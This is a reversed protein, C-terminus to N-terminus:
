EKSDGEFAGVFQEFFAHPRASYKAVVEPPVYTKVLSAFDSYAFDYSAFRPGSIKECKDFLVDIGDLLPQAPAAPEPILTQSAPDLPLWVGLGTDLTEAAEM